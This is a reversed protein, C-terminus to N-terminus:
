VGSIDTVATLPIYRDDWIFFKFTLSKDTYPVSAQLLSSEDGAKLAISKSSLAVM